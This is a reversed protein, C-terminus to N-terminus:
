WRRSLAATVTVIRPIAGDRAQYDLGAEAAWLESTGPFKFSKRGGVGVSWTGITEPSRLGNLGFGEAGRAHYAWARDDDTFSYIAKLLAAPHYAAESATVYTDRALGLRGALSWPSPWYHEFGVHAELTTGQDYFSTSGGAVGVTPIGLDRYYDGGATFRPLILAGPAVGISAVAASSVGEPHTWRRRLSAGVRGETRGFRALWDAQGTATWLRDREYTYTLTGQTGEGANALAQNQLMFNVEDAQASASTLLLAALLAHKM